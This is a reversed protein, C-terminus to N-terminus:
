NLQHVHRVTSHKLHCPFIDFDVPLLRSQTVVCGGCFSDVFSVEFGSEAAAEQPWRIVFMSGDDEGPGVAKFECDTENNAAIFVVGVFDGAVLADVAAAVADGAGITLGRM